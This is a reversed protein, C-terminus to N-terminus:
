ENGVRKKVEQEISSIKSNIMDDIVKKSKEELGEKIEDYFDKAGPVLGKSTNFVWPAVARIPEFFRSEKQEKQLSDGLPLVSELLLLLSAIM